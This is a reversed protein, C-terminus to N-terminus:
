LKMHYEYLMVAVRQVESALIHPAICRCTEIGFLSHTQMLLVSTLLSDASIINQPVTKQEKLL